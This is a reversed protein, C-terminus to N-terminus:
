KPDDDDSSGSYPNSYTSSYGSYGSYSSYPNKTGVQGTYPNVNGRTSWNDWRTSNPTTSYHPAVYTGNRTVYGRTYRQADATGALAVLAM